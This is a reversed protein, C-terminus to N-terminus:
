APPPEMLERALRLARITSITNRLHWRRDAAPCPPCGPGHRELFSDEVESEHFQIADEIEQIRVSQVPSLSYRFARRNRVLVALESESLSRERWFRDYRTLM